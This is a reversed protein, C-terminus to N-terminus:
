KGGLQSSCRCDGGQLAMYTSTNCHAACTAAANGLGAPASTKTTDAFDRTSNDQHCGVYEFKVRNDPYSYGAHTRPYCAWDSMAAKAATLNSFHLGCDGRNEDAGM